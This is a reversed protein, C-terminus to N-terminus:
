QADIFRLGKILEISDKAEEGLNLEIMNLITAITVRVAEIQAKRVIENLDEKVPLIRESLVESWSAM